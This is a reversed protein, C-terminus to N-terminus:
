AQLKKLVEEVWEDLTNFLPVGARECVLEVNGKRYFGDPCCVVMKGSSAFLGLELLSIPAKTDPHFHMAVVDCREQMDLEWEVQERFRADDKSQKWDNNWDPRRPNLITVPLHAIRDTVVTQWDEAKGMEISGALFISRGEIKPPYNPALYIKANRGAATTTTTLTAPNAAM